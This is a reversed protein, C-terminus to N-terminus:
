QQESTHRQLMPNKMILGRLGSSNILSEFKEKKEANLNELAIKSLAGEEFKLTKSAESTNSTMFNVKDKQIKAISKRAKVSPKEQLEPIL